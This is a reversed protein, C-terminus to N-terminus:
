DRVDVRVGINSENEECGASWAFGQFPSTSADLPRNHPFSNSLLWRDSFTSDQVPRLMCCCFTQLRICRGQAMAPLWSVAYFFFAFEGEKPTHPALDQSSIATEMILLFRGSLWSVSVYLSTQESTHAAKWLFHAHGILTDLTHFCCALKDFWLSFSLEQKITENEHSNKWHQCARSAWQEGQM